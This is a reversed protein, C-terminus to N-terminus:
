RRLRAYWTFQVSMAAGEFRTDWADPGRPFSVTLRYHRRERPRFVGLRVLPMSRLPGSYLVHPRRGHGVRRVTLWLRLSLRGGAPGPTDVLHSLGLYMRAAQRRSGNGITVRGSVRDGPRMNTMGLLADGGRSNTIRLPAGGGASRLAARSPLVSAYAVAAFLLLVAVTAAAVAARGRSRGGHMGCGGPSATASGGPGDVTRLAM